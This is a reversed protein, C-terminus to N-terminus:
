DNEGTVMGIDHIGLEDLTDLVRIVRGYPVAEDAKFYVAEGNHLQMLSPLRRKLELLTVRNEKLYIEGDKDITIILPQAPQSKFAQASAQPLDVQIGQLLFPATIMFIILLVLIVDVLPTVNIEAIEEGNHTKM